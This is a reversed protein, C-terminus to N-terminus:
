AGMTAITAGKPLPRGGGKSLPGRKGGKRYPPDGCGDEWVMTRVTGHRQPQLGREGLLQGVGFVLPDAVVDLTRHDPHQHLHLVGTVPTVTLTSPSRSHASWSPASIAASSCPM